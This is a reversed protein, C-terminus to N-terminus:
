GRLDNNLYPNTEQPEDKVKDEVAPFGVKDTTTVTLITNVVALIGAAITNATDVDLPLSYGFAALTNVIAVLLGALVTVTIQRNKWLTPDSVSAGKRFLAFLVAIKNM